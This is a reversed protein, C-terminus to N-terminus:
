SKQALKQLQALHELGVTMAEENVGFDVLCAIEDVGIAKLTKVTELCSDVTGILSSEQFYRQFAHELLEEEDDSTLLDDSEGSKEQSVAKTHEMHSRLYDKLPERVQSKVYKMDPGVFTHLMLTIRGEDAALGNDTRVKRYHEIREQLEIRNLRLLATLVHHGDQAAETFTDISRTTSLWTALSESYPSPFLKVTSAEGEGSPATISEGRWLGRISAITDFMVQKRDAFNDPALLFDKPHFGSGFSIGVRGKSLNDLVSWEEAIRVPHHLPAVVSGGRIHIHDTQAAIAAGVVAPNPYLGGFKNFHREPIWIADFKEKDAFQAADLVMKYRHDPQAGEDGSFFFVSFKMHAASETAQSIPASSNTESSAAASHDKSSPDLFHSLSAITLHEFFDRLSLETDLEDRIRNIVQMAMTSNGGAELFNENLGLDDRGLITRFHKSVIRATPSLEATPEASTETKQISAWPKLLTDDVAHGKESLQHLGQALFTCADATQHSSPLTSVFTHRDTFTPLAKALSSLLTGCGVEVFTAPGNQDLTLFGEYLRVPNRLQEVWYDASTAQAETIWDGTVGSVFPRQPPHMEQSAVFARYSELIPDLMKSHYARTVKVQKTDIGDAKLQESFAEIAATEGSVVCHDEALTSGLDLHGAIRPLIESEPRRIALMSGEPMSQVLQGRKCIVKMATEPTFVGALCAAVYESVSHGLMAQPELGLRNLLRCLSYEVAFLAPQAAITQSLRDQTTVKDPSEPFLISKLDIDSFQKAWDFCQDLDERFSDLNDYLDRSMNPRESGHGPFLFYVPSENNM